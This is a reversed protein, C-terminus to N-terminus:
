DRGPNRRHKPKRNQFLSDKSVVENTLLWQPRAPNLFSHIILLYIIFLRIRELQRYLILTVSADCSLRRYETQLVTLRGLVRIFLNAVNSTKATKTIKQIPRIPLSAGCMSAM